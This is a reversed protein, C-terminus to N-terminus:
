RQLFALVQEAAMAPDEQMFCHGGAVEQASISANLSVLRQVSRPVFPYTHKGYIVHTPTNIACLSAWM